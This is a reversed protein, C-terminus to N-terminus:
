KELVIMVYGYIQPLTLVTYGNEYAMDIAKESLPEFAKVYKGKVKVKKGSPLYQHEEVIELDGRKEPFTAKVHVQVTKESETVGVRATSPFDELVVTPEKLLDKLCYQVMEKHSKM